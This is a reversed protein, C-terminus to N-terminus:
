EFVWGHAIKFEHLTPGFDLTEVQMADKSFEFDEYNPPVIVLWRVYERDEVTKEEGGENNEVIWLLMQGNKDQSLPGTATDVMNPFWKRKAFVYFEYENKMPMGEFDGHEGDPNNSYERSSCKEVRFPKEWDNQELFTLLEDESLGENPIIRFCFDEYYYIKNDRCAQLIVIANHITGKQELGNYFRCGPFWFTCYERGYSDKEITEGKRFGPEIYVALSRMGPYSYLGVRYLDTRPTEALTTFFPSGPTGTGDCASLLLIFVIAILIRKKIKM